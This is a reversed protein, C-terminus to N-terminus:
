NLNQFNEWWDYHKWKWHYPVCYKYLLIEYYEKRNLSEKISALSWNDRDRTAEEEKAYKKLRGDEMWIEIANSGDVQYFDFKTLKM